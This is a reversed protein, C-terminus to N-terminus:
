EDWKCFVCVNEDERVRVIIAQTIMNMYALFSLCYFDNTSGAIWRIINQEVICRSYRDRHM